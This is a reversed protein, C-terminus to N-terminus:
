RGFYHRAFIRLVGTFVVAGDIRYFWIWGAKEPNIPFRRALPSRRKGFEVLLRLSRRTDFALWGGVVAALVLIVRVVWFGVPDQFEHLVDM